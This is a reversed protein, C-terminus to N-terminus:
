RSIAGAAVEIEPLAFEVPIGNALGLISGVVAGRHCNDGGVNANAIIGGSFDDAYKWALYLAAPFADDIYCAPSLRRGVVVEDPDRLWSEFQRGSVLSNSESLVADRVAVGSSIAVLMRVLCDAAALVGASQHTLSVHERVIKRLEALDATGAFAFLTPVHALGGIHIDEIGCRDVKLGKARNNFFARHYEEIYTDRHSGPTRMFRVYQSVWLARDYGRNEEIIVALRKALQFNLTNEGARLHQHYHVGTKGWYQAQDHLIDAEANIPEYKSRWLISGAHPNKPAVFNTVRGYDRRLANTDYYWHVPMSLADAVLAGTHANKSEM